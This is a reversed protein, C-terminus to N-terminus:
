KTDKWYSWSKKPDKTMNGCFEEYEGVLMSVDECTDMRTKMEAKYTSMKLAALRVDSFFSALALNYDAASRYNERVMAESGLLDSKELCELVIYQYAACKAHGDALEARAAEDDFAWAAGANLILLAALALVLMLRPRSFVRKM